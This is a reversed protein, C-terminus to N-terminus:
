NSIPYLPPLRDYQQVTRGGVFLSADSSPVLRPSFIVEEPISIANLAEEYL